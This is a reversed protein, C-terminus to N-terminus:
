CHSSWIFIIHLPEATAHRRACLYTAAVNAVSERLFLPNEKLCCLLLSKELQGDSPNAWINEVHISKPTLRLSAFANDLTAGFLPPAGVAIVRPAYVSCSMETRLANMLFERKTTNCSVRPIM